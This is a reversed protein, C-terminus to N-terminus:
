RRVSVRREIFSIAFGSPLTVLLYAVFAGTFAPVYEGTTNGLRDAAGTLEVVSIAYALSSNRTLALFLNGLPSVVTRLAQPLVVMALTQPFTLGISRAADVQGRDVANIGARITEGVFAGTYVALVLTATVFPSWTLGLKPFGFFVLIMLVLLPTNRVLEVYATGAVRLPLIPSVRFSALVLGIAFALAYSIVTLQMTEWLGEAFVDLNDLIVDM